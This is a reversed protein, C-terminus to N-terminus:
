RNQAGGGERDSVKPDPVWPRVTAALQHTRRWNKVKVLVPYGRALAWNIKDDAGGGGDSRLITRLRKGEDLTLVEEALALLEVLSRELQRKGDYLLDVVIEDYWTALVRGLQRSRRNKEGAFYGKTM